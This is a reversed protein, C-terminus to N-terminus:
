KLLKSRKEGREGRRSLLWVGTLNVCVGTVFFLLRIPSLSSYEDFFIGGGIMSQLSWIVEIVPVIFLADYECLLRNLNYIWFIGLSAWCSLLLVFKPSMINGFEQALVLLATKSLFVSNVCLICAAGAHCLGMRAVVVNSVHDTGGAKAIKSKIRLRLTNLSVVVILVVVVYIRFPIRMFLQQTQDLTLEKFGHHNASSVTAINGCAILVMPLSDDEFSLTEGLLVTAFVANSILAMSALPALLSQAAFRLGTVNCAGGLSNFLYGAVWLMRSKNHSAKRNFRTERLASTNSGPHSASVIHSLRILNMGLGCLSYGTMTCLLGVVWPM